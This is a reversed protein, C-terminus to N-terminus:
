IINIEIDDEWTRRPKGLPRKGESKADFGTLMEERRV